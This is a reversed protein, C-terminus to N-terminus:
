TPMRAHRRWAIAIDEKSREFNYKALSCQYRSHQFSQLQVRNSRTYTHMQAFRIYARAAVHTGLAYIIYYDISLDVIKRLSTINSSKTCVSDMATIDIDLCYWCLAHTYFVSSLCDCYKTYSSTDCKYKNEDCFQVISSDM